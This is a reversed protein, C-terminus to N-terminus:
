EKIIRVQSSIGNNVIRIYYIGRTLRSVDLEVATRTKVGLIKVPYARGFIDIIDIHQKSYVQGLELTIRNHAPNPYINMPKINQDSEQVSEQEFEDDTINERTVTRQVNNSCRCSFFSAVISTCIKYTSEYTTLEWKLTQGNFPVDFKTTGPMFIVPQASANFLGSSIIKNDPGIPVYVPTSNNNIVYFRAVYGMGNVAPIVKQVCDLYPRLKKAGYGKPNVYLTGNTITISYNISNAFPTITPIITYVGAQGAYTPSLSYTVTPIDAPMFGTIVSSYAPLPDGKYIVKNQATVSAIAPSITLKGTKYTILLNDSRLTGPLILHTGPTLGTILNLSRLAPIGQGIDEEDIITATRNNNGNVIPVAQGNVITVAQGNVITVAQGNVITVAQGNVITVAQGSTLSAVDVLGRQNVNSISSTLSTQATNINYKLISEQTIDIVTTTQPVAVGNVFLATNIARTNLLSQTTVLFNLNDVQADTLTNVIPIAQGNVITIAHGNVIPIAQGNVITVAQGNVITVAQGNVIPIAQGNVITVAQGNVLGIINTEVQATHTISLSNLLIGADPINASPDLSYNYKFGAIKQGYVLSTDRVTITVPLKTITLAGDTFGYNYNELLTSDAVSTSDFVRVPRIYYIGTNSSVQALTQFTINTLGLDALTYSTHHLSDGDVLITATFVPLQEGYKKTKNNAIVSINKKPIGSLLMGNSLGGDLKSPTQPKTYLTIIRDSTFAPITATASSIGTVTTALTDKGFLIQTNASLYAGLVRIQMPQVGPVLSSDVLELKNIQPKPRAFTRIASDAQIFGWGTTFDFGPTRMDIASGQLILKLAAPSIQQYYYKKRAEILLAVAGAVHPAAASTGYFNPLGDNELDLSGFNVTTNNGNPGILDPKNRILNNVPTGGVSSFSAETPPNVGFAPTNSYLAAGVTIAELSNAQGVITSGGQNYENIKLNGRFVVYKFRINSTTANAPASSNVILINTVTNATVTFPLIEIPDGGINNRNFGFLPNGLNDALYIDLDNLTGTITNGLSYMDDEWQLVLTYNGPTLLSGKLSDNQLIDGGGFNHAKGILSAPATSNSFISEYSKDGFNGAATVYHVGLDSVDKIAKEIIGAKFFPETIFTIDDVIVKCTDAALERIGQAFDGATLFGTRFSLRAKPAVDHIIQLMARGEDSKSGFPYDYLVHVPFPNVTNGPRGPLDDNAVDQAAPNNPLTNYSDSLVGIRISDGKLNFGNRVYNTRMASDGASQVIGSNSVPPYVPRCFSIMTTLNNLLLLNAIPYKGTIILNNQGNSITDTLGYASSTLLSALASRQGQLAIVEIWVSDPTLLFIDGLLAPNFTNYYLSSLEAGIKTNVKFNTPPPYYPIIDSPPLGKFPHHEITVGGILNVQTGSWLAGKIQSTSSHSGIFIGAYPAWVTGAWISIQVNSSGSGNSMYWASKGNACTSGNGHTEAYIRDPSGGNIITVKAKNLDVDGYIYLRFVGTTNGKFDFVFSNTAGSNKISNFIYIGPGSFTLTKNGTLTVKNFAGPTITQSGTINVTGAPPFNTIAPLAPMGPLIPTGTINGGVPAPGTYTTGSPHTLKGKIVTGANITNGKVDVNGQITGGSGIQLVNDTTGSSNAVTLKGAIQNGTSIEMKGGSYMDGGISASGTTKILKYSGVKGNVITTSPGILVSCGPSLPVTQGAAPCTGNGGFLVYEQINTQQAFSAQMFILTSGLALLGSLLNRSM